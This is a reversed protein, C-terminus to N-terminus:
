AHPSLVLLRCEDDRCVLEGNRVALLQRWFLYVCTRVCCVCVCESMCVCTARVSLFGKRDDKVNLTSGDRLSVFLIGGSSRAAGMPCVVFESGYAQVSRHSFYPACKTFASHLLDRGTADMRAVFLGKDGTIVAAVAGDPLCLLSSLILNMSPLSLKTVVPRGKLDDLALTILRAFSLHFLAADSLAITHNSHSGQEFSVQEAKNTRTNYLLIVGPTLAACVIGHVTRAVCLRDIQGGLAASSPEANWRALETLSYRPWGDTHTQPALRHLTYPLRGCLIYADRDHAVLNLCDSLLHHAAQLRRRNPPQRHGTLFGM